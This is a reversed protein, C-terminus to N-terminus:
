ILESCSTLGVEFEWKALRVEDEKLSKRINYLPLSSSLAIRRSAITHTNPSQQKHSIEEYFCLHFHKKNTNSAEKLFFILFFNFYINIKHILILHYKKQSFRQPSEDFNLPEGPKM